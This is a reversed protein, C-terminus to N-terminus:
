KKKIIAVSRSFLSKYEKNELKPPHNHDYYTEVLKGTTLLTARCKFKNIQACRWRTKDM